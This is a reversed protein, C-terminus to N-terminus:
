SVEEGGQLEDQWAKLAEWLNRAALEAQAPWTKPKALRFDPGADDLIKQIKSVETRALEAFSNIGAQHILDNIKPGIGEVVAFDDEGRITLGAARAAAVDITSAPKWAALEAELLGIKQVMEPNDVPKEVVKEVVKEVEIPKEVIREVPSEAHKFRRAFWGCLLWGILGGALYPWVACLFANM